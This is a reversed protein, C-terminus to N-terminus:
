AKTFPKPVQPLGCWQAIDNYTKALRRAIDIGDKTTKIVKGATSEAKEVDELFRIFKSMASSKAVEEPSKSQDIQDLSDQLDQITEAEESGTQLQERLENLSGQIMSIQPAINIEQTISAESHSSVPIHIEYKTPNQIFQGVLTFLNQVHVNQYQLLEKKKKIRAKAMRLENKLEIAQIPDDTFEDPSMKGTVVMGYENLVKEIVERDGELPDVIMTVKLGEQEIRIKANQKHYKKRLVTGFYNLISVGAQHYEPPFEISRIILNENEKVGDWGFVLFTSGYKEIISNPLNSATAKNIIISTLNAKELIAKDLYTERLNAEEFNVERLNAEELNAGRLNARYLNAGQLNINKSETGRLDAKILNAEQLNAGRFDAGRFYGGQLDAQRLDAQVLNAKGLNAEQLNAGRLKAGQLDARKGEKKDSTLWLEHENLIKKIENPNM